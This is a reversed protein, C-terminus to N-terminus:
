AGTCSLLIALTRLDTGNFLRFNVTWNILIVFLIVLGLKYIIRRVSGKM